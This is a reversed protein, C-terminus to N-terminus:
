GLYANLHVFGSEEWDQKAVIQSGYQRCVVLLICAVCIHWENICWWQLEAAIDGYKLEVLTLVTGRINM